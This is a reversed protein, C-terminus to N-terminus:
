HELVDADRLQALSEALDEVDVRGDVTLGPTVM